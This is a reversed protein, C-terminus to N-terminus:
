DGNFYFEDIISEDNSLNNKFNYWGLLGFESKILISELENYKGETKGLIIEIEYGKPLDAIKQLFNESKYLSIPYNLKGKIGIYYYPQKIEKFEKNEFVYKRKIDFYSNANGEVYLTLGKIHFINGFSELVVEDNLVVVIQPDDSSGESFYFELYEDKNIEWKGLLWLHDGFDYCENNLKDCDENILEFKQNKPYGFEAGLYSKIEIYDLDSFRYQGNALLSILFLSVLIYYRM